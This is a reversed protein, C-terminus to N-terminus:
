RKPYKNDLQLTRLAYIRMQPNKDTLYKILLERVTPDLEYGSIAHFCAVLLNEPINSQLLVARIANYIDPHYFPINHLAARKVANIPDSIGAVLVDKLFEKDSPLAMKIISQYAAERILWDNSKAAEILMPIAIREKLIGLTMIAEWRVNNSTDEQAIIVIRKISHPTSLEALMYIAQIRVLTSLDFSANFVLQESEPFQRYGIIDQLRKLGALRVDWRNSALDSKIKALLEPNKQLNTKGTSVCSVNFILTVFSFIIICLSIYKKMYIM